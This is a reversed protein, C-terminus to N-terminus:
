EGANKSSMEIEGLTKTDNNYIGGVIHTDEVGPLIKYTVYVDGKNMNDYFYLSTLSLQIYWEYSKPSMWMAKGDSATPDEVIKSLNSNPFIETLHKDQIDIWEDDPLNQCLEPKTGEKKFNITTYMCNKFPIGNGFEVFGLREGNETFADM